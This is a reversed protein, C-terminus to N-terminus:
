NEYEIQQIQTVRLFQSRNMLSEPCSTKLSIQCALNSAVRKRQETRWSAPVVRPILKAILLQKRVNERETNKKDKTLKGVKTVNREISRVRDALSDKAM